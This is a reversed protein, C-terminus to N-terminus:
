PDLEVYQSQVFGRMNEIEIEYWDKTERIVTFLTGTPLKIIKYSDKRAEQRINIYDKGDTKGKLALMGTQADDPIPDCEKLCSSLLYGELGDYDILSYEDGIEILKVIVGTSCSELAAGKKGASDRLTAKGTKPAYVIYVAEAEESPESPAGSEQPESNEGDTEMEPEADDITEDPLIPDEEKIPEEEPETEETFDNMEETFDNMEDTEPIEEDPFVFAPEQELETIRNMDISSAPAPSEFDGMEDPDIEQGDLMVSITGDANFVFQLDNFITTMKSRLIQGRILQGDATMTDVVAYKGKSTILSVRTDKELTGIVTDMDDQKYLDTKEKIVWMQADNWEEVTDAYVCLPMVLMVILLSILWKKM